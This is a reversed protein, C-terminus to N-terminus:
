RKRKRFWAGASLLGGILISTTPEPIATNSTANSTKVEQLSVITPTAFTRQYRGSVTAQASEVLGGFDRNLSQNSFGIHDPSDFILELVDNDNASNTTGFLALRDLLIPNATNTTDFLAFEIGAFTTAVETVPNDVATNLALGGSFNFSFSENAGVSFDGLISAVGNATAFTPQTLLVESVLVNSAEAPDTNFFADGTSQIVSGEPKAANFGIFAETNISAEGFLAPHSFTDFSFNGESTALTVAQTPLSVLGVGCLVCSGLIPFRKTLFM